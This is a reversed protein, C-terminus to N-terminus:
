LANQVPCIKGRKPLPFCSCFSHTSLMFPLCLSTKSRINKWVYAECKSRSALFVHEMHAWLLKICTAIITNRKFVFVSCNLWNIYYMWYFILCIHLTLFTTKITMKERESCTTWCSLIFTNNKISVALYNWWLHM